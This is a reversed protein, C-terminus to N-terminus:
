LWMRKVRKSLSRWIGLHLISPIYVTYFCVVVSHITKDFDVELIVV